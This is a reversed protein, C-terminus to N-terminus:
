ASKTQSTQSISEMLQQFQNGQKKMLDYLERIAEEPDFVKEGIPVWCRSGLKWLGM